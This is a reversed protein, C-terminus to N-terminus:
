DSVIHDEARVGPSTLLVQPAGGRLNADGQILDIEIRPGHEEGAAEAHPPEVPQVPEVPQIPEVPQVPQVPEVAQVPQIPEAGAAQAEPPTPEGDNPEMSLAKRQHM